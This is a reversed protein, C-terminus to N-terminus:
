TIAASQKLSEYPFATQTQRGGEGVYILQLAARSESNEGHSCHCEPFANSGETAKEANDEKEDTPIVEPTRRDLMSLLSYNRNQGAKQEV